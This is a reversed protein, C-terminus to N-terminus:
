KAYTVWRDPRSARAQSFKVVCVNLNRSIKQITESCIFKRLNVQIEQLDRICWTTQLCWGGASIHCLSGDWPSFLIYPGWKSEMHCCHWIIVRYNGQINASQVMQRALQWRRPMQQIDRRSTAWVGTRRQGGTAVQENVSVYFTCTAM